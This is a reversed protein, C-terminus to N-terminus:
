WTKKYAKLSNLDQTTTFFGWPIFADFQKVILNNDFLQAVRIIPNNDLHM